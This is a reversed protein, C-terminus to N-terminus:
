SRHHSWGTASTRTGGSPSFSPNVVGFSEGDDAEGVTPAGGLFESSKTAAAPTHSKAVSGCFATYLGRCRTCVKAHTHPKIRLTSRLEGHFDYWESDDNDFPDDDDCTYEFDHM